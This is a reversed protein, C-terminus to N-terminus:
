CCTCCSPLSVGQAQKKLQHTLYEAMTTIGHIQCEEETVIFPLMGTWLWLLICGLSYCDQPGFRVQKCLATTAGEQYTRIVEPAAIAQTSWLKEEPEAVFSHEADCLPSAQHTCHLKIMSGSQNAFTAKCFDRDACSVFCIRLSTCSLAPLPLICCSYRFTNKRHQPWTMCVLGQDNAIYCLVLCFWAPQVETLVKCAPVLTWWLPRPKAM